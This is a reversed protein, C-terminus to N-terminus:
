RAAVERLWRGLLRPTPLLAEPIPADLFGTLESSLGARGDTGRPLLRARRAVLGGLVDQLDRVQADHSQRPTTMLTLLRQTEPDYRAADPDAPAPAPWPPTAAPEPAWFAYGGVIVGALALLGLWLSGGLWEPLRRVTGLWAAVGALAVLGALVVLVPGLRRQKRSDSRPHAIM